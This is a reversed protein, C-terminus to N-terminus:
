MEVIYLISTNKMEILIIKGETLSSYGLKDNFDNSM